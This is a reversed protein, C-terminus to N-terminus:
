TAAAVRRHEKAADVFRSPCKQLYDRPADWTSRAAAASKVQVFSSPAASSEAGGAEGHRRLGDDLMSQVYCNREDLLIYATLSVCAGGRGDVSTCQTSHAHDPWFVLTDGACVFM